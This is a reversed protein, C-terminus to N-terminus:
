PYSVPSPVLTTVRLQDSELCFQPHPKCPLSLPPAPRMWCLELPLCCPFSSPCISLGSPDSDTSKSPSVEAQKNYLRPSLGFDSLQNLICLGPVSLLGPAPSTTVGIRPIQHGRRVQTLVLCVRPVSAYMCAPWVAVPM